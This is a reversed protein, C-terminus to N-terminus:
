FVPIVAGDYKENIFKKVDDSTLVETLDKIKQSDKDAERVAIINSYPEAAKSDKDESILSDKKVSFGSDIAYNGNIVAADVDEITRPISAAELERFNLNKPNSIIDKPTILEGDKVKILGNSELLKLARAENSPDNPIAITSGDKLESINKIKKSYLGLPELHVKATYTLGLNEAKNQENLYPIHQFFNADLSGESLAKNPTVYDTFEKIDVKYGKEELKPKIHEVIEKHPVPTVGITITKDDGSKSGCGVLALSLVGILVTSLITRKKM